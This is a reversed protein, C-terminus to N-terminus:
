NTFIKEIKFFFFSFFIFIRILILTFFLCRTDSSELCNIASLRGALLRWSGEKEMIKM